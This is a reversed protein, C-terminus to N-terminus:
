GAMGARKMERAALRTADIVATLDVAIIRAWEGLDDAFLDEGGIGANNFVIHPQGFREV